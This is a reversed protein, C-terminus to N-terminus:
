SPTEKRVCGQRELSTSYYATVAALLVSPTVIYDTLSGKDPGAPQAEIQKTWAPSEVIGHSQRHALELMMPIGYYISPVKFIWTYLEGGSGVPSLFLDMTEALSAKQAVPFGIMDVLEFSEQAASSDAAFEAFFEKERRIIDEDERTMGPYSSFGDMFLRLKRGKLPAVQLQDRLARLVDLQNRCVRNHVRIKICLNFPTASDEIASRRCQRSVDAPLGAITHRLFYCCADTLVLDNFRLLLQGSVKDHASNGDYADLRTVKKGYRSELLGAFGCFDHSGVVIRDVQDILGSDILGFIGSLENWIYHGFNSTVAFILVKEVDGGGWKQIPASVARSTTYCGDRIRRRVWLLMSATSQPWPTPQVSFSDDFLHVTKTGTHVFLLPLAYLGGWFLFATDDADRLEYMVSVPAAPDLNYLTSSIVQFNGFSGFDVIGGPTRLLREPTALHNATVYSRGSTNALVLGCHRIVERLMLEDYGSQSLLSESTVQRIRYGVTALGFFCRNLLTKIHVPIKAM